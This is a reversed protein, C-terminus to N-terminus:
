PANLNGNMERHGFGSFSVTWVRDKLLKRSATRRKTLGGRRHKVRMAAKAEMSQQRQCSRVIHVEFNAEFRKEARKEEKV